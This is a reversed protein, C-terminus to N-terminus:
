FGMRWSDITSLISKVLLNKLEVQDGPSLCVNHTKFFLRQVERTNFIEDSVISDPSRGHWNSPFQRFSPDKTYYFDLYEAFAASKLIKSEKIIENKLMSFLGLELFEDYKRISDKITKNNIPQTQQDSNIELSFDLLPPVLRYGIVGVDELLDYYDHLLEISYGLDCDDKLWLHMMDHNYGQVKCKYNEKDVFLITASIPVKFFLYYTEGLLLRYDNWYDQELKYKFFKYRSIILNKNSEVDNSVGLKIIEQNLYKFVKENLIEFKSPFEKKYWDLVVYFCFILVEVKGKSSVHRAPNEPYFIENSVIYNHIKDKLFDFDKAIESRHNVEMYLIKKIGLLM